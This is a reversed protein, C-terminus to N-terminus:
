FLVWWVYALNEGQNPRDSSASHQLKGSKALKAAWIKADKELTRDWELPKVKKKARAKNHLDLVETQNVTLARPFIPLHGRKGIHVDLDIARREASVILEPKGKLLTIHSPIDAQADRKRTPVQHGTVVSQIGFLLLSRGFITTFLM